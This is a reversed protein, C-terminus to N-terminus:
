WKRLFKLWAQAPRNWFTFIDGFNVAANRHHKAHYQPTVLWCFYCFDHVWSPLRKTASQHRFESHLLALILGLSVGGPSFPILLPITLLYPLLSLIRDLSVIWFETAHSQWFHYHDAKHHVQEHIGHWAHSPVHYAFTSFFDGLVMTLLAFSLTVNM